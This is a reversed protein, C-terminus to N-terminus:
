YNGVVDHQDPRTEGSQEGIGADLDDPLRGIGICEHLQDCQFPRIHRGDVDPHRRGVFVLTQYRSAADPLAVRRSCDDHEALIELRAVGLPQKGILGAPETVQELFTDGVDGIRTSAMRRTVSPSHTMSGVM